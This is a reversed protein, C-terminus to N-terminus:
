PPLIGRRSGRQPHPVERSAGAWGPVYWASTQLPQRM